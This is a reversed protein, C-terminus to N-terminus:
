VPSIFGIDEEYVGLGVTVSMSKQIKYTVRIVPKSTGFFMLYRGRGQPSSTRRPQVEPNNKTM